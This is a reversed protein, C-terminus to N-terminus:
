LKKRGLRLLTLGAVLFSGGVLAELPIGTSGTNALGRYGYAVPAEPLTIALGPTLGEYYTSGTTVVSSAHVTQGELNAFNDDLRVTITKPAFWGAASWTTQLPTITVGAPVNGTFDVTVQCPSPDTCIIPETLSLTIDVSGGASLDPTSNSFAIKDNALAPQASVLTALLGISIFIKGVIRRM